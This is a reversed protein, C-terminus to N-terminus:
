FIPDYSNQGDDGGYKVMVIVMEVMVVVALIVM